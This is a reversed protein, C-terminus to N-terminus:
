CSCICRLVWKVATTIASRHRGIHLAVPILSGLLSVALLIFVAGIHLGLNYDELGAFECDDASSSSSSSDAPAAAASTGSAAAGSAAEPAPAAPGTSSGSGAFNSLFAERAVVPLARDMGNATADHFLRRLFLLRDRM